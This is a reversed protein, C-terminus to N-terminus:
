DVDAAQYFQRPFNRGSQEDFKLIQLIAWDFDLHTSGMGQAGSEITKLLSQRRLNSEKKNRLLEDLYYNLVEEFERWTTEM